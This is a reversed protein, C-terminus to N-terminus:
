YQECGHEILGIGLPLGCTVILGIALAVLFRILWNSGPSGSYDAWSNLIVLIIAAGVFIKALLPNISGLKTFAAVLVLAVVLTCVEVVWAYEWATSYIPPAQGTIMLYPQLFINLAVGSVQQGVGEALYESTQIQVVTGCAWLVLILLGLLWSILPSSGLKKHVRNVVDAM